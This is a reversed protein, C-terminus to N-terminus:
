TSETKMQNLLFSRDEASLWNLYHVLMPAGDFPTFRVSISEGELNCSTAMRLEELDKEAMFTQQCTYVFPGLSLNTGLVSVIEDGYSFSLSVPAGKDFLAILKTALAADVTTEWNLLDLTARGTELKQATEFIIRVDEARISRRNGDERAPVMLPIKVKEQILVLKEILEKWRGDPQPFLGADISIEPLDLGTDILEMRLTGGKFMSEGFRIADLERKANPLEGNTAYKINWRVGQQTLVLEFQWPFAQHANNFATEKEGRRFNKLEVYDVYIIVWGFM